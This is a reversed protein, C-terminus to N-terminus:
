ISIIVAQYAQELFITSSIDHRPLTWRPFHGLFLRFLTLKLKLKSIIKNLNLRIIKLTIFIFVLSKCLINLIGKRYQMKRYLITNLLSDTLFCKSGTLFIYRLKSAKTCLQLLQNHRWVDFCFLSGISFSSMTSVNWCCRFLIQM